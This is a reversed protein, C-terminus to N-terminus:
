LVGAIVLVEVFATLALLAFSAFAALALAHAMRSTGRARPRAETIEGAGAAERRARDYEQLAPPREWGLAVDEREAKRLAWYGAIALILVAEAEVLFLSTAIDVEPLGYLAPVVLLSVLLSGLLIRRIWCRLRPEPEYAFAVSGVAFVVWAVGVNHVLIYLFLGAPGLARYVASALFLPQGLLRGLVMDMFGTTLAFVAVALGMRSFWAPVAVPRRVAGSAVHARGDPTDADTLPDPHPRM